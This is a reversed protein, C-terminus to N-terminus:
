ALKTNANDAGAYMSKGYVVEVDATKTAEDLAVYTVDDSDATILGLSKISSKLHLAQALSHDVNPILRTSLVNAKVISDKVNFGGKM